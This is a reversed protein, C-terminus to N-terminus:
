CDQISGMIDRLSSVLLVVHIIKFHGVTNLHVEIGDSLPYSYPLLFATRLLLRIMGPQDEGAPM